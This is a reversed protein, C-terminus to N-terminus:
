WEGAAAVASRNLDADGIHRRFQTVEAPDLDIIRDIHLGLLYWGGPRSTQHKVECDFFRWVSEKDPVAVLLREAAVRDRCLVGIGQRRGDSTIGPISQELNQLSEAPSGDFPIMWVGVSMPQANGGRRTAVIGERFPLSELNHQSLLRALVIGAKKQKDEPQFIRALRDFM